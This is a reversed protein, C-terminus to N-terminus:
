RFLLFKRAIYNWMFVLVVSLCKSVLYFIGFVGTFLWLVAENLFLGVVGIAAFVFFEVLPERANRREFVWLVSLIYISALGLLFAIAASVLYEIRVVSTLYALASFDVALAVCSAAFYRIFERTSSSGIALLSPSTESDPATVLDAETM